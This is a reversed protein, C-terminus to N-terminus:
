IRMLILFSKRAKNYLKKIEQGAAENQGMTIEIEIKLQTQRFWVGM